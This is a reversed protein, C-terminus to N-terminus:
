QELRQLLDALRAPVLQAVDYEARLCKGIAEQVDNLLRRNHAVVKRTSPSPKFAIPILRLRIWYDLDDAPRLWDEAWALLLSEGNPMDAQGAPKM